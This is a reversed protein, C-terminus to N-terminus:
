WTWSNPAEPSGIQFLWSSDPVRTLQGTPIFNL